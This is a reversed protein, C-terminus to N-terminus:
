YYLMYALITEKDPDDVGEARELQYIAEKYFGVFEGVSKIDIGKEPSVELIEKIIKIDKIHM